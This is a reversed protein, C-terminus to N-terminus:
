REGYEEEDDKANPCNELYFIIDAETGGKSWEVNAVRTDQNLLDRFNNIEFKNLGYENKLDIHSNGNSTDELATNIIKEYESNNFMTENKEINNSIKEEIDIIKKQKDTLEFALANCNRVQICGKDVLFRLEQVSYEKLLESNAPIFSDIKDKKYEEKFINLLHEELYEEIEKKCYRIIEDAKGNELLACESHFNCDTLIYEIKEKLKNNGNNYGEAIRLLDYNSLAYNIEFCINKLNNYNTNSIHYVLNKRYEDEGLYGTYIDEM